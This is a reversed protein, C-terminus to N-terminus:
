IGFEDSDWIWLYVSPLGCYVAIEPKDLQEELNKSSYTAVNVGKLKPLTNLVSIDSVDTSYLDLYELKKLPELHSIDEIESEMVTLSKLNPFKYIDKLDLKSCITALGLKELKPLEKFKSFENVSSNDLDLVKLKKLAGLKLKPCGKIRLYKLNPFQQLDKIKQDYSVINLRELSKMEPISNIDVGPGMMDEGLQLSKLRKLYQFGKFNIDTNLILYELNKLKELNLTEKKYKVSLSLRRLNKLTLIHKATRVPIEYSIKLHELTKFERILHSDKIKNFDCIELAKLQDKLDLIKEFSRLGRNKDGYNNLEFTKLNKYQKFYTHNKIKSNTVYVRKIQKAIPLFADVYFTSESDFSLEKVGKFEDIFDITKEKFDVFDLGYICKKISRIMRLDLPKKGQSLTCYIKHKDSVEKQVTQDKIKTNSDFSLSSLNPFDVLGAISGIKCNQFEINALSNKFPLFSVDKFKSNYISLRRTKRKAPKKPKHTFTIKDFILLSIPVIDDIYQINDIHCNKFEVQVFRRINSKKFCRLAAADFKMNSFKLHGPVKNKSNCDTSQFSVKNLFLDFCNLNLLDSFNPISSNNIKLTRLDQLYPLLKSFDNIVLGDLKLRRITKETGSYTNKQDPNYDKGYGEEELTIGLISNIQQLANM